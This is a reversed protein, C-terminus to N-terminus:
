YLRSIRITWDQLSHQRDTWAVYVFQLTTSRFLFNISNFSESFLIRLVKM